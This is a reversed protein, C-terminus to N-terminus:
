PPAREVVEREVDGLVLDQLRELPLFRPRRQEGDGLAVARGAIRGLDDVVRVPIRTGDEEEVRGAVDDFVDRPVIQLVAVSAREAPGVNKIDALEREDDVVDTRQRLRHLLRRRERLVLVAIGLERRKAVLPAEHQEHPPPADDVEASIRLVAHAHIRRGDGDAAGLGRRM